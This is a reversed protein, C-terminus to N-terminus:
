RVEVRQMFDLHRNPLMNPPPTPALSLQMNDLIGQLEQRQMEQLPPPMPSQGGMRNQLEQNLDPIEPLTGPNMPNTAAIARLKEQLDAAGPPLGLAEQLSGGLAQQAQARQRLREQNAQGGRRLLAPKQKFYGTKNTPM